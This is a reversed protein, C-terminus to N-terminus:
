SFVLTLDLYGFKTNKEKCVRCEVEVPVQGFM